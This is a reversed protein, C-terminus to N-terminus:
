KLESKSDAHFNFMVLNPTDLFRPFQEFIKTPNQRRFCFTKEMAKEIDLIQSKPDAFQLFKLNAEVDEASISMAHQVPEVSSKKAAVNSKKSEKSRNM